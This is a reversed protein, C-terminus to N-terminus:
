CIREIRTLVFSFLTQQVTNAVNKNLSTIYQGPLSSDLVSYEKRLRSLFSKSPQAPPSTYFAHDVPASALIKFLTWPNEDSEGEHMKAMSSDQSVSPCGITLPDEVNMDDGGTEQDENFGVQSMDEDSTDEWEVGGMAWSNEVAGGDEESTGWLVNELQEIGDYM